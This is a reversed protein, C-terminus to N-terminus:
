WTIFDKIIPIIKSSSVNAVQIVDEVTTKSLPQGARIVNTVISLVAVKISAHNAVIVEPVTSMGVMDAGITSLYKYEAPTELSPGPFAAYIGEKLTSLHHKQWAHKLNIRLGSDYAESMDPFRIGLRDDNFGRLPHDPLLNLHDSILVVEGSEFDPNLGGSANTMLLEKVGMLQLLRLPRTIEKASFGEYYHLRGTQVFFNVGESEYIALKLDHFTAPDLELLGSLDISSQLTFQELIVDSGTGLIIAKEPSSGLENKARLAISTLRDFDMATFISM